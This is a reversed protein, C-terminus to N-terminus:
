SRSKGKQFLAAEEVDDEAEIEEESVEDEDKM